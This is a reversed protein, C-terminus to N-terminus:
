GVRIVADTRYGVNIDDPYGRPNIVILTSGIVGEATACEKKVEVYKHLYGSIWTLGPSRILMESELAYNVTLPKHLVIENMLSNSPPYHTCIVIPASAMKIEYNLWKIDEEYHHTIDKYIPDNFAEESLSTLRSWLPCGLLIIGDDTIFKERNLIHINPWQNIVLRMQNIVEEYSKRKGTLNYAWVDMMEHHGPIWFVSKFQESLWKFFLKLLSSDPQGIDGCLVIAPAVPEIIKEFNINKEPWSNLHLDSCYQLRM